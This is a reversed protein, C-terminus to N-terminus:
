DNGRGKEFRYELNDWFIGAMGRINEIFRRAEHSQIRIREGLRVTPDGSLDLYEQDVLGDNHMLIHRRQIMKKIFPVESQPVIRRPIIENGPWELLGIDFWRVLFEDARLPKQFNLNEVEKRRSSTMPICLLRRRLHKALAEFESLSKVTMEEWVVERQQRDSVTEKIEELRSVMNDM